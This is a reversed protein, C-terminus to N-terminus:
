HEKKGEEINQRCNWKGLERYIEIDIMWMQHWISSLGTDLNKWYTYKLIYFENQRLHKVNKQQWVPINM